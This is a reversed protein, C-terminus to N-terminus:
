VLHNEEQTYGLDHYREMLGNLLAEEATRRVQRISLPRLVALPGQAPSQDLLFDAAPKRREALDNRPSRRKAPLEIQGARHLALMLSRCVMGWGVATARGECIRLRAGDGKQLEIVCDLEADMPQPNAEVFLPRSRAPRRTACVGM